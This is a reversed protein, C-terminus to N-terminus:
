LNSISQLNTHFTINGISSDIAVPLESISGERLIQATPYFRSMQQWAYQTEPSPFQIKVKNKPDAFFKQIAEIRKYRKGFTKETLPIM